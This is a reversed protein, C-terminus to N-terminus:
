LLNFTDALNGEFLGIPNSSLKMRAVPTIIRAHAIEISTNYNSLLVLKFFVHHLLIIMSCLLLLEYFM